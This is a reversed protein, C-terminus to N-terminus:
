WITWTESKRKIIQSAKPMTKKVTFNIYSYRSNLYYYYGGWLITVLILHAIVYLTYLTRPMYTLLFIVDM